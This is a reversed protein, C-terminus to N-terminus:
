RGAELGFLGQQPRRPERTTGTPICPKGNVLGYRRGGRVEYNLFLVGSDTWARQAGDERGDAYHRLESARGSPHWARYEGNFADDDYDAEFRRTGDPWWGRHRGAKRGEDYTRISEIRGDEYWRWERGDPRGNVLRVVMRVRGSPAREVLLGTFPNGHLMWQGGGQAAGAATTELVASGVVSIPGVLVATWFISRVVSAHSM